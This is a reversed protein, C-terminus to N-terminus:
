FTSTLTTLLQSFLSIIFARIFLLSKLMKIELTKVFFKNELDVPYVVCSMTSETEIAFIM